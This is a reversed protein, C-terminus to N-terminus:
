RMMEIVRQIDVRSLQLRSGQPKELTRSMGAHNAMAKGEHQSAIHDMPQAGQGCIWVASPRKPKGDDVSGEVALFASQRRCCAIESPVGPLLDAKHVLAYRDRWDTDDMKGLAGAVHAGWAYVDGNDALALSHEGGAAVQVIRTGLLADILKPTLQMQAGVGFCGVVRGWTFVQAKEGLALAHLTGAAVQFIGVGEFFRIVKAVPENDQHGQGHAGCLGGGWSYVAGLHSVCFATWGSTAVHAARLKGRLVSVPTPEPVCLAPVVGLGLVGSEENRGWSWVDGRQSIAMSVHGGCAIDAVLASLRLGLVEWPQGGVEPHVLTDGLGLQGYENNGLSFVRTGNESTLFLAHAEGAAV